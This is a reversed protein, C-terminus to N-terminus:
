KALKATWDCFRVTIPLYTVISKKKIWLLNCDRLYKNLNNTKRDIFLVAYSMPHSKRALCTNQRKNRIDKLILTSYTGKNIIIESFDCRMRERLSAYNWLIIIFVVNRTIFGCRQLQRYIIVFIAERVFSIGKYLM